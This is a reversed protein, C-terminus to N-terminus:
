NTNNQENQYGKIKNIEKLINQANPINFDRELLTPKVGVLQYTYELLDWVPQAVDSGHTDIKLDESEDYHGAIHIYNIKDKPIYDLFLQPNYKHNISNVYLNNVDLLLNCDSEELIYKIFEAEVLDNEPHEYYYSINELTIKMELFDQVIKIRNSIHKIAEANFPVPMLDYLHGNNSCFSLHESYLNINYEKVFKKIDNLLKMDLPDYSAISLSLGHLTMDFNKSFSNFKEKLEGGINIWNEPAIEIFNFDENNLTLFDENLLMEQRLGLGTNTIM